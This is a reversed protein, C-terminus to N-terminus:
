RERPEANDPAFVEGEDTGPVSAGIVGNMFSDLKGRSKGSRLLEEARMYKYKRGTVNRVDEVSRVITPRLFVMLNQRVKSRRESRFARGIIPIDGLLPVKNISVQENDEILGGLVIIEGDDVMVTTEIERKNTVLEAFSASVPGAVSSVEQRIFLQISNGDNIQPRVELQVGVDQRQITRFPNTNDSGLAEGTTIPIEQGVIISASQNDMTMISPTSLINSDTDQSLANVIVGFLTGNDSIGAFGTSFGNLGLLSDIAASRLGDLVDSDGSQEQDVLIAGTAALINPATNSFNTVTFPINNGESGSLVFQLGLDRAASDSVEVIIAEVLVQSRRVDLKGIVDLLARQMEPEAGIVLSNTGPDVAINARGRSSGGGDAQGGLALTASVKELLAVLTEASAHKLSVVRLDSQSESRADLDQVIETLREVDEAEGKLLLANGSDVPIAVVSRWLDGGEASRGALGAVVKAMDEAPINRLPVTRIVSTDRDIEKLVEKLRVINDAADVVILFEGGRNASVRGQSHILPKLMGLATAPDLNRLRIVETVFGPGGAGAAGVPGAEQAALDQPMVKYAGTATPVTAYGHVAMTSMFIDLITSRDVLERSIVTVQGNVRPDIIFTRGTIMSVDDIFARIDANRLNLTHEQAYGLTMFSFFLFISAFIIPARSTM